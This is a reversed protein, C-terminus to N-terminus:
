VHTIRKFLTHANKACHPPPFNEQYIMFDRYIHTNTLHVDKWFLRINEFGSVCEMFELIGSKEHSFFIFPPKTKALLTLFERMNWGKTYGSVNSFLYPPDYISFVNQNNEFPAMAEAFDCSIREINELYGDANRPTFGDHKSHWSHATLESLNKAYKSQFLLFTSLTIFDVFKGADQEKKILDIIANRSTESIRTGHRDIKSLPVIKELLANTSPINDLREQFNDYDNWIVRNQPFKQKINHAIIGSGGFVDLFITDKTIKGKHELKILLTIVEKIFNRKSGLFNLPSKYLYQM